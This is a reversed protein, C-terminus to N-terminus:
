PKEGSSEIAKAGFWLNFPQKVKAVKCKNCKLCYCFQVKRYDHATDKPTSWKGWKHFCFKM